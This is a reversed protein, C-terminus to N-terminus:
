LIFRAFIFFGTTTITIFRVPAFIGGILTFFLVLPADKRGGL